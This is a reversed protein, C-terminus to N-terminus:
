IRETFLMTMRIEFPLLAGVKDNYCVKRRMTHKKQFNKEFKVRKKLLVSIKERAFFKIKM